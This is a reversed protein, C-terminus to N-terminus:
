VKFKVIFETVKNCNSVARLSKSIMEKIEFLIAFCIHVILQENSGLLLVYFHLSFEPLGRPTHSIM